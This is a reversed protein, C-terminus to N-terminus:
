RRRLITVVRLWGRMKHGAFVRAVEDMHTRRIDAESGPGPLKSSRLRDLDSSRIRSPSRFHPSREPQRGQRPRNTM